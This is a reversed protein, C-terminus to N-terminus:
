DVNLYFSRLFIYKKLHLFFLQKNTQYLNFLRMNISGYIIWYYIIYILDITFMRNLAICVTNLLHSLHRDSVHPYFSTMRNYVIVFSLRLAAYCRLWYVHNKLRRKRTGKCIRKFKNVTITIQWYDIAIASSANGSSKNELSM